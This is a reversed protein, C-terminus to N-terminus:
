QDTGARSRVTASASPLKLYGSFFAAARQFADERAKGRFFHGQDNYIVIDHAIGHEKLYRGLSRARGVPVVADKAGHLALTPALRNSDPMTNGRLAGGMSVVAAIRPDRSSLNLAHFGGLSMGFVGIRSADVYPSQAIQDLADVLIKDQVTFGARVSGGPTPDKPAPKASTKASGKAPKKAASKPAPDNARGPALYHPLFTVYGREAFIEAAARYFAGDGVGSAGHLILIAPRRQDSDPRLVEMRVQHGQSAYRMESRAFQLGFADSNRAEADPEDGLKAAAVLDPDKDATFEAALRRLPRNSVRHWEDSDAIREAAPPEEAIPEAAAVAPPAVPATKPEDSAVVESASLAATLLLIIEIM